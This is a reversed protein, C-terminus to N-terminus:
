SPLEIEGLREFYYYVQAKKWEPKVGAIFRIRQAGAYKMGEDKEFAEGQKVELDRIGIGDNASELNGAPRVKDTLQIEGPEWHQFGGGAAQASPKVTLEILYWRLGKTSEDELEESNTPQPALTIDHVEITAGKLVASKAKFPALLLGKFLLQGCVKLFIYFCIPGGILVGLSVYWPAYALLAAAAIVCVMFFILILRCM